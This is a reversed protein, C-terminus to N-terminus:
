NGPAIRGNNILNGNLIGVGRYLGNNIVKGGNLCEITGNNKLDIQSTFIANDLTLKFSPPIVLHINLNNVSTLDNLETYDAVQLITDLPVANNIASSLSFYDVNGIRFYASLMQAEYAGIDFVGIRAMSDLDLMPYVSAPNGANIAPSSPQLHLDYPPNGNLFLPDQNINNIGPYGGSVISYNIEDLPGLQVETGNNWFICNTIATNNGGGISALGGIPNLGTLAANSYFTSNYFNMSTNNLYVAGGGYLNTLSSARNEIFECNYVHYNLAFQSYIAGGLDGQNNKFRLNRLLTVNSPSGGFVSLAGGENSDFICNAILVTDIGPFVIGSTNFCVAGCGATKNEIFSCNEISCATANIAGGFGYPGGENTLNENNVFSCFAVRNSILQPSLLPLTVLGGGKNFSFDCYRITGNRTILGAKNNNIFTCNDITSLGELIAGEPINSDFETNNLYAVGFAVIGGGVLINSSNQTADNQFFRCDNVDITSNASSYIAGGNSSVNETFVCDNLMCNSLNAFLAGGQKLSNNFSFSTSIFEPNSDNSYVGAGGNKVSVQNNSTTFNGDFTCGSIKMDSGADLYLGGGNMISYNSNFSSSDITGLCSFSYIGGGGGQDVGSISNTATSSNSTFNCHIIYPSGGLNFIGGGKSNILPQASNSTFSSNRIIADSLNNFIGGGDNAVNSIFTSEVIQPASNLNYIAGGGISASNSTFSCMYIKIDSEDNYISGGVPATNSNFTCNTFRAASALNLVAGGGNSSAKNNTFKCNTISPGAGENRIAGGGNYSGPGNANGDSVTFGDLVATSDQSQFNYFVHYSDNNGMADIDGSLITEHTSWNRLNLSNESGEFGGYIAVGNKLSFSIARNNDYTPKYTGEAVWVQSTFASNIMSQLDSSANNWSSGDGLGEAMPKVYKIIAPCSQKVDETTCTNGSIDTFGGNTLWNCLFNFVCQTLVANNTIYVAFGNIQTLGNLASLSILNLNDSVVLNGGLITLNELGSLDSLLDNGLVSLTSGIQTVSSLPSLSSLMDNNEVTLEGGISMVNSLSSIDALASNDKIILYGTITLLHQLGNLNTLSGNNIININDPLILGIDDIGALLTNGEIHLLNMASNVNQLGSLSLLNPNSSIFIYDTIATLSSLGNLSTLSQNQSLSLGGVSVLNDLGALNSVNNNENIFLSGVTNLNSLPNFNVIAPNGTIWFEGTLSTLGNLGDLLLVDNYNIKLENCSTIGNLGQLNQLVPNYEIRIKSVNVLASLNIITSLGSCNTLTIEDVTTLAELGALSTLASCYQIELRSAKKLGAFGGLSSLVPCNLLTIEALTDLGSLAGVNVLNIHNSIFINGQFDLNELGNLNILAHNSDFYLQNVKSLNSLASINTLVSNHTLILETGISDLNDLGALNTLAGNSDLYLFGGIKQLQTLGALNTIDPGSVYVDGEVFHCGPYNVPFNDIEAQSSFVIGSNLCNQAKINLASVFLVLLVCLLLKFYAGFSLNQKMSAKNIM